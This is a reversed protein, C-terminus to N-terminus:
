ESAIYLVTMGNPLTMVKLRALFQERQNFARVLNNYSGTLTEQRRDAAGAISRAEERLEGISRRDRAGAEEVKQVALVLRAQAQRLGTLADDIRARDEAQQAALARMDSTSACGGLGIVVAAVPLVLMHKM